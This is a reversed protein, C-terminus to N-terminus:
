TFITKIERKDTIFQKNNVKLAFELISDSNLRSLLKSFKEYKLIAKINWQERLKFSNNIENIIYKVILIL